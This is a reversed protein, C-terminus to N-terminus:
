TFATESLCRYPFTLPLLYRTISSHVGLVPERGREPPDFEPTACRRWVINKGKVHLQGTDATGLPRPNGHGDLGSGRLQVATM